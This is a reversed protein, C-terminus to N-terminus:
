SARCPRSAWRRVRATRSGRPGPVGGVLHARQVLRHGVHLRAVGDVDDGVVRPPRRRGTVQDPVPPAPVRVEGQHHQAQGAEPGQEEPAPQHVLHDGAVGAVDERAEGGIGVEGVGVQAALDLDLVPREQGEELAELRRGAPQGRDGGRRQGPRRHGLVRAVGLHVGREPPHAQELRVGGVDGQEVGRDGVPLAVEGELRGTELPHPPREGGAAAHHGGDVPHHVVDPRPRVQDLDGGVPHQGHGLGREAGVGTPQEGTVHRDVGVAFVELEPGLGPGGAVPVAVVPPDLLPHQTGGGLLLVQRAQARLADGPQAPPGLGVRPAVVLGGM